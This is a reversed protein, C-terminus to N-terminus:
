RLKLVGLKWSCSLEFYQKHLYTSTNKITYISFLFYKFEYNVGSSHSMCVDVLVSGIYAAVDGSIQGYVSSDYNVIKVVTVKAFLSLSSGSSPTVAGFWTPAIKIYIKINNKLCDSTCKNIFLVLAAWWNRDQALHIWNVVKWGTGKLYMKINGECSCGSRGNKKKKGGPKGM